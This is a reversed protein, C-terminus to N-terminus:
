SIQYNTISLISLDKCVLQLYQKRGLWEQIYRYVGHVM